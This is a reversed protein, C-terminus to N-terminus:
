GLTEIFMGAQVIDDTAPVSVSEGTLKITIDSTITESTTFLNGNYVSGGNIWLTANVKQNSSNSRIVNMQVTWGANNFGVAGTSLVTTSGFYVKITKTNANAATYGFATVRVTKGNYSLSNAPLINSMLNDEGAGVNGVATFNSILTQPGTNDLILSTTSDAVGVRRVYTAPETATITGTATALYYSSGATLGVLGTIRGGIRISFDLNASGATLAYGIKQPMTSTAPLSASTRGWNSSSGLVYVWEGAAISTGANGNIDLNIPAPESVSLVISTTTDAVGVIRYGTSALAGATASVYYTTGATLGSLGTVRGAKRVTTSNGTTATANVVGVSLPVSSAYAVDADTKYWRGATLSGTGVSLYALDGAALNEGAVATVDVTSGYPAYSTVGDRTWIIEAGVPPDAATPTALIFKYSTDAPLYVSARGAADLVIPNANASATAPDAANYTNQKTSTGSQYCYLKYGAAVAGADTFEQLPVCPLITYVM